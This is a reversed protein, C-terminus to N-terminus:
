GRRRILAVVGLGLLVMSTPEPIAGVGTGYNDAWITYDADTVTGDGNFDARSDTTSQYTDAWITYDADTVAGDGNADGPVAGGSGLAIDMASYSSYWNDGRVYVDVSNNDAINAPDAAGYIVDIGGSFQGCHLNGQSDFAMERLTEISTSYDAQKVLSWSTPDWVYVKNTAVGGSYWGAAGYVYPSIEPNYELETNGSGAAGPAFGTAVIQYSMDSANVKVLEGYANYAVVTNDDLWITGQNDGTALAYNDTESGNSISAGSGTGVATGADYDYVYVRGSDNGTLSVKTNDPSVALGSIRSATVGVGVGPMEEYAGSGDTSYNYLAGNGSPPGYNGVLMNGSANHSVGAANDFEVLQMFIPHAPWQQGIAAGGRLTILSEGETNSSLGVVIDDQQIQAWAPGVCLCAVAIAVWARMRM